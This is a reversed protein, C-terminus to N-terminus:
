YDKPNEKQDNILEGYYNSFFQHNCEPKFYHKRKIWIFGDGKSIVAVDIPGGVTEAEMSVKRKFSTLNVLSEAMAALEDKPLMGVVNVISDIHKEKKYDKVHSLWDQFLNDSEKKITELLKDKDEQSLNKINSVVMEPFKAFIEAMYSEIYNQFDPDVGEIFTSVMEKQAFPIVVGDNNFSIDASLNDLIRFKLKGKIVCEMQFAKLSPFIDKEGFGAVVVGSYNNPFINKTFLFSSICSLQTKIETGLPIREFAARMAENIEKEYDLRILKAFEEQFLDPAKNLNDFHIKITSYIIETVEQETIKGNKKIVKEIRNKADEIIYRYFGFSNRFVLKQQESEPFEACINQLSTIFDDAYEKLSDFKKRGLQNRYQKIITEWPVNMFTASGYIMIGVPYHKSLAFLKNASPFVKQEKGHSITVASDTALAVAEKNMVAIEATM